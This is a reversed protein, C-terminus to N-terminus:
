AGVMAKSSGSVWPISVVMAANGGEIFVSRRFDGFELLVLASIPSSPSGWAYRQKLWTILCARDGEIPM